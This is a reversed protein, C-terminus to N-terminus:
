PKAMCLKSNSGVHHGWGMGKSNLDQAWGELVGAGPGAHSCSSGPLQTALISTEQLFPPVRFTPASYPPQLYFAKAPVKCLSVPFPLSTLLTVPLAVICCGQEEPYPGSPVNRSCSSKLISGVCFCLLHPMAPALLSTHFLVLRAERQLPCSHSCQPSHSMGPAPLTAM